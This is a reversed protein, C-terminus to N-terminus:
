NKSRGFFKFFALRDRWELPRKALIAVIEQRGFAKAFDLATLGRDNRHEADAGYSLLLKVIDLYGKFSAGMLISNGGLDASNADAGNDLLLECIDLHGGYAALMLLSYGNHNRMNVDGGNGIFIEVLLLDGGRIDDFIPEPAAMTRKYEAWTM